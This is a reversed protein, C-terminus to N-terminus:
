FCIGACANKGNDTAMGNCALISISHVSERSSQQSEFTTTVRLSRLEWFTSHCIQHPQRVLFSANINRQVINIKSMDLRAMTIPLYRVM